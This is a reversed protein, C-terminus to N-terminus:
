VLSDTDYVKLFRKKIKYVDSHNSIQIGFQVKIESAAKVKPVQIRHHSPTKNARIIKVACNM